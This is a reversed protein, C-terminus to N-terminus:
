LDKSKQAVVKTPDLMPRALLTDLFELVRNTLLGFPGIAVRQVANHRVHIRGEPTPEGVELVAAITRVERLEVFPDAHSEPADQAAATSEGTSTTSIVM